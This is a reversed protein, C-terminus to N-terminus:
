GRGDEGREWLLAGCSACLVYDIDEAPAPQLAVAIKETVANTRRDRVQVCLLGGCGACGLLLGHVM